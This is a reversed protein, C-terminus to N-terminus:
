SPRTERVELLQGYATCLNCYCDACQWLGCQPHSDSGVSLDVVVMEGTADPTTTTHNDQSRILSQSSLLDLDQGVVVVEGDAGCKEMGDVDFDYRAVKGFGYKDFMLSHIDNSYDDPVSFDDDNSDDEVNDYQSPLRKRKSVDEDLKLKKLM